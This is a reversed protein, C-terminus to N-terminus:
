PDGIDISIQPYGYIDIGPHGKSTWENCMPLIDVLIWPYDLIDMAISLHAHCVPSTHLLRPVDWSKRPYRWPYGRVEVAVM